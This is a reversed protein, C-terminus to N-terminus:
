FTKPVLRGKKMEFFYLNEIGTHNTPSFSVTVDGVDADKMTNLASILKERTLQRGALKLAEHFIAANLYGEFGRPHPAMKNKAMEDLYDSALSTSNKSYIPLVSVVMPQISILRAMDAGEKSFSGMSIAFASDISASKLKKLLMATEAPGSWILVVDPKGSLAAIARDIDGTQKGIQAEGMSKLGAEQAAKIYSARQTEASSDGATFLATSKASFKSRLVKMLERFETDTDMRVYFVGPQIPKRFRPSDDIAGFMPIGTEKVVALAAELTTRSYPTLLAFVEKALRALNEKALKTTGQDDLARLVIKRGFVGGSANVKNWYVNTSNVAHTGSRNMPVSTGLVIQEDTVGIEARAEVAISLNVALFLFSFRKVSEIYCNQVRDTKLGFIPSRANM